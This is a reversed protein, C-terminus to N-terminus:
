KVFDEFSSNCDNLIESAQEKTVNLTSKNLFDNTDILKAQEGTYMSGSNSLMVDKGFAFLTFKCKNNLYEEGTFIQAFYYYATSLVWDEEAHITVDYSPYMDGEEKQCSYSVTGWEFTYDKELIDNSKNEESSLNQCEEKFFGYYEEIKGVYEDLVSNDVDDFHSNLYESGDILSSNEFCAFSNEDSTKTILVNGNLASLIYGNKKDVLNDLEKSFYLFSYTLEWDEKCDISIYYKNDWTVAMFLNTDDFSYEKKLLPEKPEETAQETTAETTTIEETTTTVEEKSGCGVMGFMMCSCLAFLVIRKKM